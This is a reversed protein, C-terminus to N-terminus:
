HTPRNRDAESAQRRTVPIARPRNGRTGITHLASAQALRRQAYRADRYIRHTDSVQQQTVKSLAAGKEAYKDAHDNGIRDHDTIIGVEVM